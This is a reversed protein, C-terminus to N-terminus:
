GATKQALRELFRGHKILAREHFGAGILDKEDHCEVKFRMKRGDSSLLSVTASVAMGVPTAAAHSIDVHTGVTREDDELYPALAAVCAWEMFAVLYATAFVPPMDEFGAFSASMAPV